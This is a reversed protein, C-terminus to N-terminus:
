EPAEGTNTATAEWPAESPQEKPDIMRDLVADLARAIEETPVRMEKGDPPWHAVWVGEAEDLQMGFSLREIRGGTGAQDRVLCLCGPGGESLSVLLGLRPVGAYVPEPGTFRAVMYHMPAEDRGMEIVERLTRPEFDAEALPKTPRKRRPHHNILSM